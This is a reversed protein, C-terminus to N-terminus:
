CPASIVTSTSCPPPAPPWSSAHADVSRFVRLYPVDWVRDYVGTLMSRSAALDRPLRGPQDGILVLGLLRNGAPVGGALYQAAADRAARLGQLHTRAVVVVPRYWDVAPNPWYRYADAAFLEGDTRSYHMLTSVGAGGHVGLYLWSAAGADGIPADWVPILREAPPLPFTGSPAPIRDPKIPRVTEISRNVM